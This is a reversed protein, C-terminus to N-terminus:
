CGAQVEKIPCLFPVIGGGGGEGYVRTIKERLFNGNKRGPDSAVEAYNRTM